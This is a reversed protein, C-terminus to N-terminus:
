IKLKNIAIFIYFLSIVVPLFQFFAFLPNLGIKTLAFLILDIFYNYGYVTGGAFFPHPFPFSNFASKVLSIHWLADHM